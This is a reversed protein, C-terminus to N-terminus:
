PIAIPRPFPWLKILFIEILVHSQESSLITRVIWIWTCHGTVWPCYIACTYWDTPLSSASGPIEGCRLFILLLNWSFLHILYRVSLMVVLLCDTLLSDVDLSTLGNYCMCRGDIRLISSYLCPPEHWIKWFFIAELSRISSSTGHILSLAFHCVITSTYWYLFKVMLSSGNISLCRFRIM